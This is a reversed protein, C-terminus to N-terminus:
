AESEKLFFGDMNGCYDHTNATNGDEVGNPVFM